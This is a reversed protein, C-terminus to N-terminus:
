SYPCSLWLLSANEVFLCLYPLTPLFKINATGRVDDRDVGNRPPTWPSLCASIQLM